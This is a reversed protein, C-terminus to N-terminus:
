RWTRRPRAPKTRLRLHLVVGCATGVWLDGNSTFAAATVVDFAESLDLKAAAGGGSIRLLPDRTGTHWAIRGSPRHVGLVVPWDSSTKALQMLQRAWPSPKGHRGSRPERVLVRQDTVVEMRGDPRFRLHVTQEPNSQGPVPVLKYLRESWLARASRSSLLQLEDSTEVAIYRGDASIALDYIPGFGHWHRVVRRSKADWLFVSYTDVGRVSREATLVVTGVASLAMSSLSFVANGMVDFSDLKGSAISYRLLRRASLMWAEDRGQVAAIDYLPGVEIERLLKGLRADRIQLLGFHDVSVMRRERGAVVLGAITGQHGPKHRKVRLRDLDLIHASEGPFVYGRKGDPTVAVPLVRSVAAAQKPLQMVRVRGNPGPDVVAIRATSCGYLVRGTSTAVAASRPTCGKFGVVRLVRGTAVDYTVVATTTAAVFRRGNALFQTDLVASPRARITRVTAGTRADLLVHRSGVTWMLWRGAPSYRVRTSRRCRSQPFSRVWSPVSAGLKWVSVSCERGRGPASKYLTYLALSRDMPSLALGMVEVGRATPQGGGLSILHRQKGTATDYLHVRSWGKVTAFSRGSPSLTAFYGPEVSFARIVARRKLDWITAIKGHRTMGWRGRADITMSRPSSELGFGWTGHVAALRFSGSLRIRKARDIPRPPVPRQGKRM